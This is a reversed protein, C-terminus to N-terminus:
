FEMMSVTKGYGATDVGWRPVKKWAERGSSVGEKLGNKLCEKFNQCDSNVGVNCLVNENQSKGDFIEFIAEYFLRFPAM